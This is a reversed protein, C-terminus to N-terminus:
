QTARQKRFEANKMDDMRLSDFIGGLQDLDSDSIDSDSVGSFTSGLSLMSSCSEMRNTRNFYANRGGLPGDEEDFDCEAFIGKTSENRTLKIEESDSSQDQEVQEPSPSEARSDHWKECASDECICPM